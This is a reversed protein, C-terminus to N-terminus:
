PPTEIKTPANEDEIDQLRIMLDTVARFAEMETKTLDDGEFLNNMALRQLLMLHKRMNRASAAIDEAEISIRYSDTQLFNTNQKAM